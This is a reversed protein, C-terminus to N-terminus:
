WEDPGLELSVRLWERWEARGVTPAASVFRPTLTIHRQLPEEARRRVAADAPEDGDQERNPTGMRDTM